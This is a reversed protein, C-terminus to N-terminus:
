QRQKASTCEAFPYLFLDPLNRIRVKDGVNFKPKGAEGKFCQPDGIGTAKDAHHNNSM